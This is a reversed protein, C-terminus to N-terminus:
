DEEVAAFSIDRKLYGAKGFRVTSILLGLEKAQAILYHVKDESIGYKKEMIEVLDSERVINKLGDFEKMLLDIENTGTQKAPRVENM